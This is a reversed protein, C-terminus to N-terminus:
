LLCIGDVEARDQKKENRGRDCSILRGALSDIAGKLTDLIVRLGLHIRGFVSKGHSQPNVLSAGGDNGANAIFCNLPFSSKEFWGM